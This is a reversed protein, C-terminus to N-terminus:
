SEPVRTGSIMRKGLLRPAPVVLSSSILKMSKTGVISESAPKLRGPYRSPCTKWPAALASGRCETKLKLKRSRM